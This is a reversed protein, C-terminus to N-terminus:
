LTSPPKFTINGIQKIREIFMELYDVTTSHIDHNLVKSSDRSRIQDIGHQVWKDPQYAHDWDLTDVNWLVLRYGLQRVVGDVVGNHSGYPPRFIKDPGLYNSIVDDTKKIENRIETETLKTLDPHTYSHNGIRHGEDFTKRVLQKLNQANKGVVFFTAKISFKGLIGLVRETLVRAPGDDFTLWIEKGALTAYKPILAKYQAGSMTGVRGGDQSKRAAKKM